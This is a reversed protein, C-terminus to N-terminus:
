GHDQRRLDAIMRSRSIPLQPLLSLELFYGTLALGNLIDKISAEAEKWLFLPLPLLKDKYPLGKERSVARGTKPSVYALDEKNGGGACGTLDLSFGLASLLKKEFLVYKKYFDKENIGELFSLTEAHLSDYIQREPLVKDLTVCLNALVNLRPMDDLLLPAYAKIEELYFSGLQEALRAKWQAHVLTGIEPPHKKKIVGLHRGYEKTFVSIIYTEEGLPRAGLVIGNQCTFEPM